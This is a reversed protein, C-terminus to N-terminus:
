LEEPPFAVVEDVTGANCFLMVLRDIGLAIGAAPPMSALEDLFREPMPFMVRGQAARYALEGTFRRRQEVPDTLESFANALELGGLYLEFREATDPDDSKLRSLAGRSAPYDCLFTPKEWGLRPEIHEVMLADFCDTRLAEDAGIECYRRFAERVPLREWPPSLDFTHGRFSVMPEGATARAVAALLAECDAMLDRYDGHARYWELMTFEPLHLSGREGERWCHCIQFLREYGASLLRKMCLEPSTQLFWGDSPIPDIHSEPAPAPIRLPTEVELYGGAIFFQRIEQIIRARARLLPQKRALHWNAIM